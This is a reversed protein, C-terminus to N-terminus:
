AQKRLWPAVDELSCLSIFFALKLHLPPIMRCPPISICTFQMSNYQHQLSEVATGAKVGAREPPPHCNDCSLVARALSVLHPPTGLIHLLVEKLSNSRVSAGHCM